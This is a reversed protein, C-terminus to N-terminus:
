TAYMGHNSHRVKLHLGDSLTEAYKVNSAGSINATGSTGVYFFTSAADVAIDGQVRDIILSNFASIVGVTNPISLILNKGFNSTDAYDITLSDGFAYGTGGVSVTAAVAVGGSVTIKSRGSGRGTLSIIDVDQYTTSASTFATGASTITLESNIGIAGVLSRM